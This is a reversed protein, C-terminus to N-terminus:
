APVLMLAAAHLRELEAVAAPGEAEAMGRLVPLGSDIADLIENGTAARGRAFWLTRLPPGVDFLLGGDHDKFTSWKNYGTVWCLAM